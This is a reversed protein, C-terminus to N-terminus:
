LIASIDMKFRFDDKLTVNWMRQDHIMSTHSYEKIKFLFYSYYTSAPAAWMALGDRIRHLAQLLTTTLFELPGNYNARISSVTSFIKPEFMNSRILGSEPHSGAGCRVSLLLTKANDDEGFEGKRMWKVSGLTTVANKISM